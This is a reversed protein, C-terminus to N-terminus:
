GAKLPQLKDGADRRESAVRAREIKRGLSIKIKEAGDEGTVTLIAKVSAVDADPKEVIQQAAKGSLGDRAAAHVAAAGDREGDLAVAAHIGAIEVREVAKQEPIYVFAGEGPQIGGVSCFAKDGFRERKRRFTGAAFIEGEAAAAAPAVTVVARQWGGVAPAACVPFKEAAYQM